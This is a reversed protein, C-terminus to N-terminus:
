NLQIWYRNIARNDIRRGNKTIYFLMTWWSESKCKASKATARRTWMRLQIEEM